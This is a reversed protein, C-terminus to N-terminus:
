DEGPISAPFDPARLTVPRSASRELSTPPPLTRPNDAGSPASRVPVDVAESRQGAAFTAAADPKAGPVAGDKEREALRALRRAVDAKIRAVPDAARARAAAVADPDPLQRDAGDPVDPPGPMLPAASLANRLPFPGPSAARWEGDAVVAHIASAEHLRGQEDVHAPFIIRLVREGTRRASGSGTGDGTGALIRGPPRARRTGGEFIGSAPIASPDDTIMALARDDIVSSPACIGDPASCTFSGKVNSGLGACAGLSALAPLCVALAPRRPSRGPLFRSM